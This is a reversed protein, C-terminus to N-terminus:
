TSSPRMDKGVSASDISRSLRVWSDSELDFILSWLIAWVTDFDHLSEWRFIKSRTELIQIKSILTPRCLSTQTQVPVYFCISEGEFNCCVVLGVSMASNERDHIAEEVRQAKHCWHCDLASRQYTLSWLPVHNPCPVEQLSSFYTPPISFRVEFALCGECWVCM